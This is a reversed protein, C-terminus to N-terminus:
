QMDLFYNGLKYLLKSYLHAGVKQVSPNKRVQYEPLRFEVPSDSNKVEDM